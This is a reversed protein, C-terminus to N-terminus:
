VALRITQIWLLALPDQIIEKACSAAARHKWLPIFPFPHTM